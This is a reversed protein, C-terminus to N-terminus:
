SGNFDTEPYQRGDPLNYLDESVDTPEWTEECPRSREFFRTLWVSCEYLVFLPLALGIQSIVDPPTVIAAIVFCFVVAYRRKNSLYSSSIVGMRALLVLLIPLQFCVGFALILAIVLDLYEGVRAELQVPLITQESNTQFGLLFEWAMPIFFCYVLSAGLLFLAPSAILASVFVAREQQYLGPAVFRWVHFAIFPFSSVFAGFVSVKLYTVFAETLATYIMRRSGGVEDMVRALPHVLIGYLTESISYCLCFFALFITLCWLFRRRLETLHGILSMRAGESYVYEDSAESM